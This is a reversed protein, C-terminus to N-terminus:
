VVHNYVKFQIVDEIVDNYNLDDKKRYNLETKSFTKFTKSDIM